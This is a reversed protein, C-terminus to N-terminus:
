QFSAFPYGCMKWNNDELKAQFIRGELDTEMNEGGAYSYVFKGQCTVQTFPQGSPDETKCILGNLEVTVGEFAAGEALAQEEWEVCSFNVAKTADKSVLATLYSEIAQEPTSKKVCANSMLMIILMMLSTLILHLPKM